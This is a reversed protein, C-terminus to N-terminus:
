FSIKQIENRFKRARNAWEGTMIRALYSCMAGVNKSICMKNANLIVTLDRKSDGANNLAEMSMGSTLSGDGIIAVVSFTEKWQCSM